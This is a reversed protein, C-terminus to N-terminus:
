RGRTAVEKLRIKVIERVLEASLLKRAEFRLTGKGSFYPTLVDGLAAMVAGSAPFLSLHRKYAAYSVLFHGGIRFAPMSYAITEQADPAAAKIQKRLHELAVRQEDPVHALYEDVSAPGAM